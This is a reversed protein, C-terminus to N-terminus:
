LGRLDMGPWRLSDLMEPVLCFYVPLVMNECLINLCLLFIINKKEIIECVRSLPSIVVHLSGFGIMSAPM